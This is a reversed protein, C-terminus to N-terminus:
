IDASKRMKEFFRSIIRACDDKLVGYEIKPKPAMDWDFLNFKSGCAGTTFDLAGIYIEDIRALMIAGACMPCPELTVFISAGKLNRRGLRACADEIAVIEAHSTASARAERLNRGRGVIRGNEVVVCGVPVDGAAACKEAETLAEKMYSQKEERTM